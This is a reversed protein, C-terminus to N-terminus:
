AGIGTRVNVGVTTKSKGYLPNRYTDGDKIMGRVDIKGLGGKAEAVVGVTRPLYVNAEGVGRAINVYYSRKREGRLDVDCKGAGIHVEFPYSIWRCRPPTQTRRGGNDIPPTSRGQSIAPIAM